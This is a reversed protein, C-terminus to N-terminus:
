NEETKPEDQIYEDSKGTSEEKILPNETILKVDKGILLIAALAFFDGSLLVGGIMTLRMSIISFLLLTFIGICKGATFLPVYARYRITDLCLFLVMLPFLVSAAAFVMNTFNSSNYGQLIMYGALVLIRICEYIFLVPKVISVVKMYLFYLSFPYYDLPSKHTKINFKIKDIRFLSLNDM